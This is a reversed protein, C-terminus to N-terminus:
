IKTAEKPIELKKEWIIQIETKLGFKSPVELGKLPIHFYKTREEPLYWTWGNIAINTKHGDVIVETIDGHEPLLTKANVQEMFNKFSIAEGKTPKDFKEGKTLTQM